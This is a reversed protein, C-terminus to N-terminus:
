DRKFILNYINEVDEIKELEPHFTLGYQNHFRLGTIEGRFSSLCEVGEEVSVIIPARIFTMPVGTLNSFSGITSFSSSQRGYANRKTVIPLTKFVGEGEGELSCSLLILGACTGLVPIGSEIIEKLMKTMGRRELLIKQATSEGGPLVLADLSSIDERRRLEVTDYGLADLHNIHERFAGQLALVGVRM